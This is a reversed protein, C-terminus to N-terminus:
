YRVEVGAHWSRGPLPFGEVDYVDNDTLNDVRVSVRLEGGDARIRRWSLGIGVMSRAPARAEPTNIRDRYNGDQWAVTLYPRWAGQRRAARVWVEVPSLYPLDQGDYPRIGSTDRARQWTGNATLDVGGATMDMELEVGRTESAGINLPKSTGPSNQVYVITRTGTTLFGTARLTLPLSDPQWTVGLATSVLRESQLDRNGALGGRHGFLEIWTPQRQSRSWEARVFLTRPVAEGIVALSPSSERTVHPSGEETDLYYFPPLPPFDDRVHHWRWAPIAQLREAALGLDGEAFLTWTERTRLPNVLDNYSQRFDQHRWQAGVTASLHSFGADPRSFLMPALALRVGHDRAVSHVTGQFGFLVEGQFDYLYEEDRRTTMDARLLGDRWLCSLRGDRSRLSVAAHMTPAGMSGPRGGDRRYLGLASRVQWRGHSWGGQSWLGWEEWQANRRVALTDDDSRTFTQLHDTYDYDNEIRRAHATVTMDGGETGPTGTGWVLKASRDGFSGVKGGVQFGQAGAATVLNVAGAGAVGGMMVPVLGRYVDAREYRALPLRSLDFMGSEADNLALGDVLIMVQAPGSGRLSPVAGSGSGGFRRVQLGAVTALASALDDPGSDSQLDVRTVLGPGVPLTGSLGQGIVVMTDQLAVSASGVSVVVATSGAAGGTAGAGQPGALSGAASLCCLFVGYM